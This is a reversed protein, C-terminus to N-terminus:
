LSRRSLLRQWWYREIPIEGSEQDYNDKLNVVRDNEFYVAVSRAVVPTGAPGSTYMYDWRDKRFSNQAVPEGAIAIIDQRSMGPQMRDRQSQSVLNGQQVEIKHAPPLWFPQGCSSLMPLAIVAILLIFPRKILQM